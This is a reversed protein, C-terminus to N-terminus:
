AARDRAPLWEAPLFPPVTPLEAPSLGISRSASLSPRGELLEHLDSFVGLTRITALIQLSAANPPDTTLTGDVILADAHDLLAPLAALSDRVGDADGGRGDLEPARAYYSVIPASVHSLLGVAPM